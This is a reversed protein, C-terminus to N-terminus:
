GGELELGRLDVRCPFTKYSKARLARTVRERAGPGREGPAAWVLALAQPGVGPRAVGGAERVLAELRDFAANRGGLAGSGARLDAALLEPVEGYRGALLAERARRVIRTAEDSAADTTDDGAGDSAGVRSSAAGYGREAGVARRVEAVVPSADSSERPVDVLLLCEEVRAPDVALREAPGALPSAPAGVIGGWVAAFGAAPLSPEFLEGHVAFAALEEASRSMGTARASAAAVAVALAGGSGLGAGFPVRAQTTVAVGRDIGLDLLVRRVLGGLGVLPLDEARAREIKLLSDKSELRIGFPGAEVRAFPRRDLAVAISGAGAPRAAAPVPGLSGGFLDIRCAASAEAARRESASASSM